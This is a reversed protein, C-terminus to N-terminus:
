SNEGRELLTKGIIIMAPNEIKYRDQLFTEVDKIIIEESKKGLRIGVAVPTKPDLGNTILLELINYFTRSGMYIVITLGLDVIAKWNYFNKIDGQATRGTIFVVGSSYRRSTLSFQLLSSLYSATTVGPVITVPVKMEKAVGLEDYLRGFIAPDGGKLRAVKLGESIYKKLYSNIKEQVIYHSEIMKGVYVLKSPELESILDDGVLSDYLVIDAKKLLDYGKLTILDKSGGGGIIYLESM